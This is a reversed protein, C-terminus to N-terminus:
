RARADIWGRAALALDAVTATVDIAVGVEDEGLPELTDLQSRLLAPPMFHGERGRARAALLEASGTLHVFVVGPAAARLRDRYSRKLASCAVVPRDADVLTAAVADLWPWRDEDQLPVGASMKAVNAAPHLDDADVFRAGMLRALEAGVSSKGSASVGMVVVRARPAADARGDEVTTVLREGTM